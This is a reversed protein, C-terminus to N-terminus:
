LQLLDDQGGRETTPKPGVAEGIIV